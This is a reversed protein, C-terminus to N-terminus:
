WAPIQYRVHATGKVMKQNSTSKLVLDPPTVDEAKMQSCETMRRLGILEKIDSAITSNSLGILEAIEKANCGSRFMEEVIPLRLDKPLHYYFIPTENHFWRREIKMCIESKVLVYEGFHLLEVKGRYPPKADMAQQSVTAFYEYVPSLPKM